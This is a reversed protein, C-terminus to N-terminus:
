THATTPVTTVPAGPDFDPGVLVLVPAGALQAPKDLPIETPMAAVRDAPLGLATAVGRADNAGGAAFYVTTKTTKKGNVATAAAYGRQILVDRTANGRGTKGSGNGVVIKLQAIPTTVVPTTPTTTSNPNKGTAVAAPTRGADPNDKTVGGGKALLYFGIVVAVVVLVVGTVASNVPSTPQRTRGSSQNAM